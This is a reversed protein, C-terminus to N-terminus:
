KSLKTHQVTKGNDKIKYIDGTQLNADRGFFEYVPSDGMNRGNKIGIFCDKNNGYEHRLVTNEAKFNINNEFIVVHDFKKGLGLSFRKYGKNPDVENTSWSRESPNINLKKKIKTTIDNFLKGLFEEVQSPTKIEKFAESKCAQKITKNIIISARKGKTYDCIPTIIKM